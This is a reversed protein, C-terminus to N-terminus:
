TTEHKGLWGQWTDGVKVPGEPFNYSEPPKSYGTQHLSNGRTDSTVTGTFQTVYSKNM